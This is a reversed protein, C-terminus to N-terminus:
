PCQCHHWEIAWICNEILGLRGNCSRAVIDTDQVMKSIDNSIEWLKFLDRSESCMGTLVLMDRM